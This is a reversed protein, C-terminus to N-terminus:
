CWTPRYATWTKFEQVPLWMATCHVLGAKIM